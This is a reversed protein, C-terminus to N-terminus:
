PHPRRRMANEQERQERITHGRRAAHALAGAPDGADASRGIPGAGAFLRNGSTVFAGIPRAQVPTTRAPAPHVGAVRFLPHPVARLPGETEADRVTVLAGGAAQGRAACPAFSALMVSLALVPAFLLAKRM